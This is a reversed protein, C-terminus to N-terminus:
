RNSPARRATVDLVWSAGFRTANGRKKEVYDREHFRHQDVCSAKAAPTSSTKSLGMLGFARTQTTSLSTM